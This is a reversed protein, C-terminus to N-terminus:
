RGLRFTYAVQVKIVLKITHYHTDNVVFLVAALVLVLVLKAMHVESIDCLYSVLGRSGWDNQIYPYTLM